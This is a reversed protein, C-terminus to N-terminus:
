VLFINTSILTPLWFLVGQAVVLTELEVLLSSGEYFFVVGFLAVRGCHPEHFGHKKM